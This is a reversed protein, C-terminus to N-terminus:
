LNSVKLLGFYDASEFVNQGRGRFIKKSELGEGLFDPLRSLKALTKVSVQKYSPQISLQSLLLM